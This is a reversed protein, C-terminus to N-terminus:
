PAIARHHKREWYRDYLEGVTTFACSPEGQLFLLLHFPVRLIEISSDPLTVQKLSALTLSAKVEDISLTSLSHKDFGSKEDGLSRLRQDHNLDFDRCALLLKMHQYSQVERCLQEFVEWMQPNRGSVLSMADLQDVILVSSANDAVGALVVAPSEPLDMQKGLQQTTHCPDFSDMRLCLFPTGQQLLQEVCQALVCSKGFGGPAIVLAGRSDGQTLSAAIKQVADRIIHAGNILEKETVSRYRQNAKDVAEIVTADLRWDRIGFGQDKVFGRLRDTTFTQGLNEVIHAAILRRVDGARLESDDVRYLLLDLRREISDALGPHDRLRVQLTKLAALAAEADGGCLPVINKAFKERLEKNSLQALFDSSTTAPKARETLERLENAGTASVFCTECDPWRKQKELLDGLTSRGTSKNKVFCLDAISWDGDVKQRKVSHFQRIGSNAVTHFEVGRSEEGFAEVTISYLRGEFVDLAMEVTWLAEYLDSIKASAGGPKPM